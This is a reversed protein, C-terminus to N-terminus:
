AVVHEIQSQLELSNRESPLPLFCTVSFSTNSPTSLSQCACRLRTGRRQVRNNTAHGRGNELWQEQEHEQEHEQEQRNKAM